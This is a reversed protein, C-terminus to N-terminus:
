QQPWVAPTRADIMTRRNMTVRALRHFHTRDANHKSKTFCHRTAPLFYWMASKSSALRRMSLSSGAAKLLPAPEQNIRQMTLLSDKMKSICTIFIKQIQMRWVWTLAHPLGAQWFGRPPAEATDGPPAPPPSGPPLTGAVAAARVPRREGQVLMRLSLALFSRRTSQLRAPSRASHRGFM